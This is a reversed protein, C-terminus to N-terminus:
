PKQMEMKQAILAPTNVEQKHWGLHWLQMLALVGLLTMALHIALPGQWTSLAGVAVLLVPGLLLGLSKALGPPPIDSIENKLRSRTCHMAWALSPLVMAWVGFVPSDGWVGVAGLSLLTLTLQAHYPGVLHVVAHFRMLYAVVSPLGAMLCLHMVVMQETRWGLGACWANNLWLSGMMLGMASPALLGHGQTRGGHCVPKREAHVQAHAWLVGTCLWLLHIPGLYLVLAAALIPHWAVPGLQYTSSTSRTEICANWAGWVVALSLLWAHSESTSPLQGLLWVGSATLLGALGLLVPPCHFVWARGRCLMRVAWWAAVPLLGSAMTWGIRMGQEGLWVWGLLVVVWHAVESAHAWPGAESTVRPHNSMPMGTSNTLDRLRM